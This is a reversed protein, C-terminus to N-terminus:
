RFLKRMFRGVYAGMSRQMIIWIVDVGARIDGSDSDIVRVQQKLNTSSILLRLLIDANVKPPM